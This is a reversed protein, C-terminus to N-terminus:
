DEVCPRIQSFKPVDHVRNHHHTGGDREREIHHSYVAVLWVGVLAPRSQRRRLLLLRQAFIGGTGSMIVTDKQNGRWLIKRVQKSTISGFVMVLLHVVYVVM